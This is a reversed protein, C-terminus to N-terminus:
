TPMRVGLWGFRTCPSSRIMPQFRRQDHYPAEHHPYQIPVDSKPLSSYSSSLLMGESGGPLATRTSFSPANASHVRLLSGASAARAPRTSPASVSSARTLGMRVCHGTPLLKEAGVIPEAIQVFAAGVIPETRTCPQVCSSSATQTALRSPGVERLIIAPKPTPVSSAGGIPRGRQISANLHTVPTRLESPAFHLPPPPPLPSSVVTPLASIIESYKITPAANAIQVERATEPTSASISPGDTVVPSVRSSTDGSSLMDSSAESIDGTVRASHFSRDNGSEFQLGNGVQAGGNRQICESDQKNEAPEEEVSIPTPLSKLPPVIATKGVKPSAKPVWVKTPQDLSEEPVKERSTREKVSADLADFHQELSSREQSAPSNVDDDHISYTETRAKNPSDAIAMPNNTDEADESSSKGLQKHLRTYFFKSLWEEAAAVQEAWKQQSEQCGSELDAVENPSPDATISDQISSTRLLDTDGEDGNPPKGKDNALRSLMLIRAKDSQLRAHLTSANQTVKDKMVIYAERLWSAFRVQLGVADETRQLAVTRLSRHSSLSRLLEEGGEAAARQEEEEVVTREGDQRCEQLMELIDTFAERLVGIMRSVKAVRQQRREAAAGGNISHIRDKQEMYNKVAKVQLDICEAAAAHESAEERLVVLSQAHAQEFEVLKSELLKSSRPKSGSVAKHKAGMCSLLKQVATSRAEVLDPASPGSGPQSIQSSLVQIEKAINLEVAANRDLLDTIQKRHEYIEELPERLYKQVWIEYVDTVSSMASQGTGDLVERLGKCLAEGGIARSSEPSRQLESLLEQHLLRLSNLPAEVLRSRLQESEPALLAAQDQFRRIEGGVRARALAHQPAGKPEGVAGISSNLEKLAKSLEGLEPYHATWREVM